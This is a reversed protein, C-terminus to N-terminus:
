DGDIRKNLEKYFEEKTFTYKEVEYILVLMDNLAKIRGSNWTKDIGKQHEVLTKLEKITKFEMM